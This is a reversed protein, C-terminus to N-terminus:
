AKGDTAGEDSTLEEVRAVFNWLHSTSNLEEADPATVLFEGIVQSEAVSTRLPIPSWVLDGYQQQLREVMLQHLTTRARFKNPVIGLLNAPKRNLAILTQNAEEIHELTSPLGNLASFAEADTPLIIHNSILVLSEHLGTISPQTDIVVYDFLRRSKMVVLRKSLASVMNYRSTSGAIGSSENNGRILYLRADPDGTMKESVPQILTALNVDERKIFDYFDPARRHGFSMTLDGQGDTDIALVRHGLKALGVALTGALTTKGVGGKENLLLLVKM